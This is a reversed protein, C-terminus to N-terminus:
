SSISQEDLKYWESFSVLVIAQVTGNAKDNEPSWEFDFPLQKEVASNHTLTSHQNQEDCDKFSFLDNTNEFKGFHEGSDNQVYILLGKASKPGNISIKIKPSTSKTTNISFEGTGSVAYAGHPSHKMKDVDCVGPYSEYIFIYHHCTYLPSPPFMTTTLNVVEQSPLILSSADSSAAAFSPASSAAASSPTLCLGSILCM